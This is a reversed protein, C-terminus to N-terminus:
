IHILSLPILHPLNHEVYYLDWDPINHVQPFLPHAMQSAVVACPHRIILVIGRLQYHQDIWPLLRNARVSKIVLRKSLLLQMLSNDRLMGPNLNKGSLIAGVVRKGSPWPSNPDVYTRWSFGAERLGPTSLHFPETIMAYGKSISLIVGLWTTGSRPSGTLLITDATDYNRMMLARIALKRIQNM